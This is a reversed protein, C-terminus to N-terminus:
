LQEDDISRMPHQSWVWADPDWIGWEGRLVPDIFARAALLVAGLDRWPLKNMAALREYVPPWSTPPEPLRDPLDHSARFAFTRELAESMRQAEYRGLQALLAIDALDKVRSNERERPLTYAHIKEAIHTERPYVRFTAPTIGIFDLFRSGEVKEPDGLLVDGFAIDVGFPTGYLKGALHGEARFRQGEYVIGDGEITPHNSDPEIDFTLFDGLDRHVANRLRDFLESPEGSMRLDVDRTMRARELRLELVMGGKLVAQEGFEAFIRALFRDFVLLQRFRGMDMKTKAVTQRIRTELSHKFAEPSQYQRINM